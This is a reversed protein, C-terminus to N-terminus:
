KLYWIDNVTRKLKISIELALELKPRSINNEWNSYNKIDLGLIKAFEVSNLMYERMRIEKLNNKIGL